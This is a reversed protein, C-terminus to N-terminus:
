HRPLTLGLMQLRRKRAAYATADAGSPQEDVEAEPEVEGQPEADDRAEAQVEPQPEPTAEDEDTGEAVARGELQQYTGMLAHQMDGLEEAMHIAWLSRLEATTTAYAPDPTLSIEILHKLNHIVRHPKGGRMTMESNGRGVVFGPSMGTIDGRQVLERAAEGIYHKAISAKVRVKGGDERISLTGGKVTALVPVHPPSHDYALRTNEGSALVKRYAGHKFEETFDGIDATEGYPTVIGEFGWGDDRVEFDVFPMSRYEPLSDVDPTRPQKDGNPM